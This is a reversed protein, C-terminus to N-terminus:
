LRSDPFHSVNLCLTKNELRRDDEKFLSPESINHKERTPHIGGLIRRLLGRSFSLLPTTRACGHRPAPGNRIGALPARRKLTRPSAGVHPATFDAAMNAGQFRLRAVSTAVPERGSKYM